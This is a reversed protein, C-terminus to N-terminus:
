RMEQHTEQKIKPGMMDKSHTFSSVECKTHLNITTLVLMGYRHYIVGLYPTNPTVYHATLNIIFINHVHSDTHIYQLRTVVHIHLIWCCSQKGTTTQPLKCVPQISDQQYEAKIALQTKSIDIGVVSAQAPKPVHALNWNDHHARLVCDALFTRTGNIVHAYVSQSGFQMVAGKMLRTCHIAEVNFANELITPLKGNSVVKWLLNKRNKLLLKWSTTNRKSQKWRSHWITIMKLITQPMNAPELHNLSFRVLIFSISFSIIFFRVPSAFGTM